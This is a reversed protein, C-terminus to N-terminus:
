KLPLHLDRSLNTEISDKWNTQKVCRLYGLRSGLTYCLTVKTKQDKQRWRGFAPITPRCWVQAELAQQNYVLRRVAKNIYLQSLPSLKTSTGCRLLIMELVLCHSHGSELPRRRDHQGEEM